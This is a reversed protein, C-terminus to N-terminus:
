NRERKEKWKIYLMHIIGDILGIKPVIFNNAGVSQAVDIYTNAAPIIVDARDPKLKYKEILEDVTYQKLETTIAELAVLPFKRGTRTKALENLKIINGGSAIIDNIQYQKKLEQLDRHLNDYEVSEVKDNLLRVTGIKYSKSQVLEGNVLLSIETSGGGVDV